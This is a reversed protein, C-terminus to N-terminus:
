ATPVGLRAVELIREEPLQHTPILNQETRIPSVDSERVIFFEGAKLDALEDRTRMERLTAKAIALASGSHTISRPLTRHSSYLSRSARSPFM